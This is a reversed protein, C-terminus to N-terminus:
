TPAITGSTLLVTTTTTPTVPIARETEMAFAMCSVLAERYGIHETMWFGSVGAAEAQRCIEITEGVTDFGDFRIGLRTTM